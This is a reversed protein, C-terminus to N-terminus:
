LDLKTPAKISRGLHYKTGAADKPNCTLAPKWYSDPKIDIGPLNDPHNIFKATRGITSSKLEWDVSPHKLKLDGINGRKTRGNIQIDVAASWSSPLKVVRYNPEWKFDM